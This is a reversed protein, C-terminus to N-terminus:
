KLRDGYQRQYYAKYDDRDRIDRWWDQHDVYWDITRNMTQEVDVTPTWGLAKIKLDSSCM